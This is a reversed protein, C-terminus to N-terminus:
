NEEREERPGNSTNSVSGPRPTNASFVTHKPHKGNFNENFAERSALTDDLSKRCSSRECFLGSEANFRKSPVALEVFEKQYCESM